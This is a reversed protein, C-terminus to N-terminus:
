AETLTDRPVSRPSRERRRVFVVTATWMILLFAYWQIAYSINQGTDIEPRPAPVPLAGGAPTQEHLMIWSTALAGDIQADLRPLDINFVRALPGDAADTPGFGPQVGSSRLHGVVSVRGDPPAARTVPPEDMSAPVWGRNVLVVDFGMVPADLQLPTLVHFGAVGNNARNRWLIEQAPVWTGNVQVRTYEADLDDVDALAIPTADVRADVEAAQAKADDWRRLQWAGLSLFLGTLLAVIVFLVLWGPRLLDRM